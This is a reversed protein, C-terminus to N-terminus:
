TDRSDQQWGNGWVGIRHVAAHARHSWTCFPRAVGSAGPVLWTEVLGLEEAKGEWVPVLRPTVARMGLFPTDRTVAGPEQTGGSPVAREIQKM